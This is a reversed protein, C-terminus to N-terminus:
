ILIVPNTTYDIGCPTPSPLSLQYLDTCRAELDAFAKAKEGTKSLDILRSSVPLSATNKCLKLIEAGKQNFGLVRVYPPAQKM